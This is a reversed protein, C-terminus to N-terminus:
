VGGAPSLDGNSSHLRDPQLVEYLSCCGVEYSGAGAPAGQVALRAQPQWLLALWPTTGVCV